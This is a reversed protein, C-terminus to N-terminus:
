KKLTIKHQAVLRKIIKDFEPRNQVNALPIGGHKAVLGRPTLDVVDEYHIIRRPMFYRKLTIQEGFRAERFIIMPMSLVTFGFIIAYIIYPFISRSALAKFIFFICAIVGIPYLVVTMRIRAPYQPKFVIEENLPNKSSTM